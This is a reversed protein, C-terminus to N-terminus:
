DGAKMRREVCVFLQKRLRLFMMKVADESKGLKAALAKMPTNEHYHDTLYAREDSALEEICLRLASADRRSVLPRWIRGWSEDLQNIIEPSLSTTPRRGFGRRHRLIVMRAIGRLWKGLDKDVNFKARARWAELCTEQALDDALDRDRVIMSIFAVLGSSESELAAVWSADSTSFM